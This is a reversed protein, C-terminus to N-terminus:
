LIDDIIPFLNPIGNVLLCSLGVLSIFRSWMTPDASPSIVCHRMRHSRPIDNGSLITIGENKMLETKEKESEVSAFHDVSKQVFNEKCVEAESLKEKSKSIVTTSYMEMEKALRSFSWRSPFSDMISIVSVIRSVNFLLKFIVSLLSVMLVFCVNLILFGILLKLSINWVRPNFLNWLGSNKLHFLFAKLYPSIVLISAKSKSYTSIPMWSALIIGVAVGLISISRAYSPTFSSRPHFACTIVLLSFVALPVNPDKTLFEDLIDGNLIWILASTVGIVLGAIVDVPSHVGLYMRSISISSVWIFIFLIVWIDLDISGNNRLYSLLFFSLSVSLMSHTSPLGCDNM